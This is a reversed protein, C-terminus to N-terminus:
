AGLTDLRSRYELLTSNILKPLEVVGYIVGIDFNCTSTGSDNIAQLADLAKLNEAIADDLFATKADLVDDKVITSKARREVLGRLADHFTKNQKVFENIQRQNFM